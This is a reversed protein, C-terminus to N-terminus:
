SARALNQLAPVPVKHDVYCGHSCYFLQTAIERLYSEGISGRCLACFSPQRPTRGNVMVFKM